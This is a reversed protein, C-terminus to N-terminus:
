ILYDYPHAKDKTDLGRVKLKCTNDSEAELQDFDDAGAGYACDVLSELDGDQLERDFELM